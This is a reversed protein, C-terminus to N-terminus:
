EYNLGKLINKAADLEMQIRIEKAYSGIHPTTIVNNYKILSGKYPEENYVDIGAGNILNKRLANDLDDENIIEGRSTNIIIADSKMKSLKNFDILGKNENTLNLHISVIDSQKLLSDM